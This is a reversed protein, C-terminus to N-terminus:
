PSARRMRHSARCPDKGAAATDCGVARRVTPKAIPANANTGPSGWTANPVKAHSRQGLPARAGQTCTAAVRHSLFGEFRLAPSMVRVLGLVGDAQQADVRQADVDPFIRNASSSGGVPGANSARM